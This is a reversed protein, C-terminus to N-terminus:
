EIASLPAITFDDYLISDPGICGPMVIRQLALIEAKFKNFLSDDVLLLQPMKSEDWELQPLWYTRIHETLMRIRNYAKCSPYDTKSAKLRNDDYRHASYTNGHCTVSEIDPTIEYKPRCASDIVPVSTNLAVSM